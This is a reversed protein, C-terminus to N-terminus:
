VNVNEAVEKIRNCFDRMANYEHHCKEKDVCSKCADGMLLYNFCYITCPEFGNHTLADSKRIKM